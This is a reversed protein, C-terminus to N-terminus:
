AERAWITLGPMSSGERVDASDSGVSYVKYEERAIGPWIEPRRESFYLLAARVEDTSMSTEVDFAIATVDFEKQQKSARTEISFALEGRIAIRPRVLERGLSSTAAIRAGVRTPQPDPNLM